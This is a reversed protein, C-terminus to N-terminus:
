RPMFIGELAGLAVDPSMSVGPSATGYEPEVNEPMQLADKWAGQAFRAAGEPTAFEIFDKEALATRPDHDEVLLDGRQRLTPYAIHRGDVEANAMLHTSITGDPNQRVPYDAPSLMRRVFPVNLNEDLLSKVHTADSSRVHRARALAADQATRKLPINTTERGGAPLGLAGPFAWDIVSAPSTEPSEREWMEGGGAGMQLAALAQAPGVLGGIPRGSGWSSVSGQRPLLDEDQVLQPYDPM